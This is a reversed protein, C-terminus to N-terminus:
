EVGGIEYDETSKKGLDYRMVDGPVCNWGAAVADQYVKTQQWNEYLVWEGSETAYEVQFAISLYGTKVFFEEQGTLVHEEKYEEFWELNDASVPFLETPLSFDGQWVRKGDESQFEELLISGQRMGNRTDKEDGAMLFYVKKGGVLAHYYVNCEKREAEDNSIWQYFPTIRIQKPLIWQNEPVSFSYYFKHGTKLTLAQIGERLKEKGVYDSTDTISFELVQSEGESEWIAYLTTNRVPVYTSVESSADDNPLFIELSGDPAECWGLLTYGNCTANPLVVYSGNGGWTPYLYLVAGDTDTLRSVM